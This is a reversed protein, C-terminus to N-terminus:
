DFVPYTRIASWLLGPLKRFAINREFEALKKSFIDLNKATGHFVYPRMRFPARVVTKQPRHLMLFNTVKCTGSQIDGITSGPYGGWPAIMSYFGWTGPANLAVTGYRLGSISREVAEKVTPERMSDGSVVMTASLTGWVTTNLFDVAKDLYEPITNADLIVVGCLGSFSERRFCMDDTNDPDLEPILTWPVYGPLGKGIEIAEPHKSIFSKQTEDSGPYYARIPDVMSLAHLLKEQFAGTYQWKKYLVLIRPAFCLYGEHRMMWFAMKSAQEAVDRDNWKGPVIIWPTICGLEGQVPKTVLPKVQKKRKAGEEGSGFVISNFTRDSGTMHVEEVLDHNVLYQGVEGGGYVIRLFGRSILARYAKELLPGLYSNVPNMKVVVVCLDHFLKHITDSSILSSANGAGLVLAVRGRRASSFYLEAQKSRAEVMTVGPELRVEMEIGRFALGHAIGDPYVKAAVQGNSLLRYGGRVSPKREKKIDQLSRLLTTHIRQITAVELWERDNGNSRVEIGKAAVSLESWRDSVSIFDKSIQKVLSIREDIGLNAWEQSHAGIEDLAHDLEEMTTTQFGTSTQVKENFTITM